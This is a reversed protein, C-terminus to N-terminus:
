LEEAEIINNDKLPLTKLATELEKAIESESMSSIVTLSKPAKAENHSKFGNLHKLMVEAAKIRDRDEADEKHLIKNLVDVVSEITIPTGIRIEAKRHHADIYQQVRPIKLLKNGVSSWHSNDSWPRPSPEGFANTAKFAAKKLDFGNELYEHVFIQERETLELSAKLDPDDALAYGRIIEDPEKKHKSMERNESLCM